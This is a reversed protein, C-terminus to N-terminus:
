GNAIEQLFERFEQPEGGDRGRIMPWHAGLLEPKNEPPGDYIRLRKLNKKLAKFLGEFKYYRSLPRESSEAGWYLVVGNVARLVTRLESDKPQHWAWRINDYRGFIEELQAVQDRSADVFVSPLTTQARLAACVAQCFAPISSAQVTDRLLLERLRPDQLRMVDTSPDRWQQIERGKRVAIELQRAVAGPVQDPAEPATGLLQVFLRVSDILRATEAEFQAPDSPLRGHPVVEFGAQELYRLVELRRAEVDRTAEALFVRQRAGTDPGAAASAAAGAPSLQSALALILDFVVAFYAQQDPEAALSPFGLTRPTGHVSRWFVARRHADFEAAIQRPVESKEVIVVRQPAATAVSRIAEALAESRVWDSNFFAPSLVVVITASRRVLEAREAAPFHGPSKSLVRPEAIGRGGLLKTVCDVLDDVWGNPQNGFTANDEDAFCFFVDTPM